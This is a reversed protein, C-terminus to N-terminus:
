LAMANIVGDVGLGLPIRLTARRNQNLLGTKQDRDWVQVTKSWGSVYLVKSDPAFCLGTVQGGPGGPELRIISYSEQSAAENGGVVVFLLVLALSRHLGRGALSILSTCGNFLNRTRSLGM